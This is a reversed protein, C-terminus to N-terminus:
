WFTNFYHGHNIFEICFFRLHRYSSCCHSQGLFIGSVWIAKNVFLTNQLKWFVYFSARGSASCTSVKRESVATFLTKKTKNQAFLWDRLFINKLSTNFFLNTTSYPFGSNEVNMLSICYHVLWSFSVLWM